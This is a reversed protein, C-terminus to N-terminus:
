ERAVEMRTKPRPPEQGATDPNKNKDFVEFGKNEQSEETMQIAPMEEDEKRNRGRGPPLKIPAKGTPKRLNNYEALEEPSLTYEKVPGSARGEPDAPFKMWEMDCTYRRTVKEGM